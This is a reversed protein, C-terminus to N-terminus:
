VIERHTVIGDVKVIAELFIGNKGQVTRPGEVLTIEVGEKGYITMRDAPMLPYDSCYEKQM